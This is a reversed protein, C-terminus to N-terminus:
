VNRLVHGSKNKRETLIEQNNKALVQNKCALVGVALDHVKENQKGTYEGYHDLPTTACYQM